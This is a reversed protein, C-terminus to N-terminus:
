FVMFLELLDLANFVFFISVFLYFFVSPSIFKVSSGLIGDPYASTSVNNMPQFRTVPNVSLQGNQTLVNAASGVYPGIVLRRIRHLPFRLSFSVTM